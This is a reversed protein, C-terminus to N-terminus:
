EQPKRYVQDLTKGQDDVWETWGNQSAGLVFVAAASPTEFELARPLKAVGNADKFLQVRADEVSRNKLVPRSLDVDSDALVTFKGTDKDYTGRACINNKKTHFIANAETPGHDVRDLDYGLFTMRFLIDNFLDVVREEKYPDIYPKPIVTNDTEYSGHDFVYAIARAELANLVDQSISQNDDLFMIAKNWFAKLANHSELRTIGQTTQGAYVRSLVGHDEDLLFYIGRPPIKPLRKAESLKNRPIVLTVLSEGEVRCRRIGDPDADFLDITFTKVHLM